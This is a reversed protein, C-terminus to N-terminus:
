QSKKEAIIIETHKVDNFVKDINQIHKFMFQWISSLTEIEKYDIKLEKMEIDNLFQDCIHFIFKKFVHHMIKVFQTVSNMM